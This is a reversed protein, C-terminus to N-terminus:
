ESRVPPKEGRFVVAEVDWQLAHMRSALLDRFGALAAKETEFHGADVVALGLSQATLAHHHGIDGTILVDAGARSAAGILSGGSGGVVAATRIIKEAEGTVRVTGVGLAAKVKQVLDSLARPEELRGIRGLGVATERNEVEQLSRADLLGMLRALQDNIGKEAADLNTHAALVAVGRQVAEWLVTGPYTDRELSTLPKFILPHHALLVQAQFEAAAHLAELTPDLSILIKNVPDRRGGVQLGPNDWEEALSQPAIRDLLELIQGINPQM